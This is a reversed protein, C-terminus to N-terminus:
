ITEEKSNGKYNAIVLGVIMVILAVYLIPKFIIGIDTRLWEYILGMILSIACSKIIISHRM